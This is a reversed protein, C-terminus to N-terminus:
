SPNLLVLISLPSSSPVQRHSPLRAAAFTRLTLLLHEDRLQPEVLVVIVVWFWFHRSELGWSAYM